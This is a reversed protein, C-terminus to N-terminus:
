NNQLVLDNPKFNKLYGDYMTAVLPIQTKLAARYEQVCNIRASDYGKFHDKLPEVREICDRFEMKDQELLTQVHRHQLLM